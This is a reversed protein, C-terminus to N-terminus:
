GILEVGPYASHAKFDASVLTADLLSAVAPALADYFSCGLLDCQTAAERVVDDTLPVIDLRAKQMLKWARTLDGTDNRREVVSLVEHVFHTPVVIQVEGRLASELVVMARREGAEHRFWKVGVSADLVVLGSVM